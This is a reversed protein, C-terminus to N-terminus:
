VCNVAWCWCYDATQLGKCYYHQQLLRTAAVTVTVSRLLGAKAVDLFGRCVDEVELGQRFAEDLMEQLATALRSAFIFV